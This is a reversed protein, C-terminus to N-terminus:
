LFFLRWEHRARPQISATNASKCRRLRSMCFLEEWLDSRLALPFVLCSQSEAMLFSTAQAHKINSSTLIAAQFSYQSIICAALTVAVSRFAVEESLRSHSQLSPM